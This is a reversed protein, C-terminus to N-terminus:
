VRVEGWKGNRIKQQAFREAKNELSRYSEDFTGLHTNCSECHFAIRDVVRYASVNEPHVQFDCHPCFTRFDIMYDGAYCWRWRLGMFFDSTYSQWSISEAARPSVAQWVLTAIIAVAPLAALILLGILWNPILSKDSAFTLATTLYAGLVPWWDLFYSLGLAFAGVIGTSIVKSWVPDNWISKWSAMPFLALLYFYSKAIACSKASDWIYPPM